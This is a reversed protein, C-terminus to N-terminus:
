RCFPWCPCFGEISHKKISEILRKVAQDDVVLHTTGDKDPHSRAHAMVQAVFRRRNLDKEADFPPTGNKLTDAVEGQTLYSVLASAGQNDFKIRMVRATQAAVLVVERAYLEVATEPKYQQLIREENLLLSSVLAQQASASAAFVFVIWIISFTKM